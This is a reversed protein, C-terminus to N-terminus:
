GEPILTKIQNRPRYNYFGDFSLDEDLGPWHIGFPSLEFRDRELPDAQSLKPFWALPMGRVEGLRNEIFVEETTTWVRAIDNVTISM